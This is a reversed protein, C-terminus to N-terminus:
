MNETFELEMEPLFRGRISSEKRSITKFGYKMYFSEAFPDSLVNLIECSNNRCSHIAHEILQKGINKGIHKPHVFLFELFCTRSNVRNLLYFGAIEDEIVFKSGRWDKFLESTITLEERWSEIQEESYGWFAKSKLAIQTLVQADVPLAKTIM